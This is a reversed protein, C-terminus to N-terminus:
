GIKSVEIMCIKGQIAYKAKYCQLQSPCIRHEDFTSQVHITYGDLRAVAYLQRAAEHAEKLTMKQQSQQGFINRKVLYM